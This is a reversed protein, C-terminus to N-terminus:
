ALVVKGGPALIMIDTYPVELGRATLAVFFEAPHGGQWDLPPAYMGYHCPIVVRPQLEHTLQAAFGASLNTDNIPLLLYDVHLSAMSKLYCSDGPHYINGHATKILYGCGAEDQDKVDPYYVLDRSVHLGRIVEIEYGDGEIVDGPKVARVRAEGVGGEVLFKRCYEPACVTSGMEELRGFLGRDMHDTHEHTYLVHDAQQIDAGPLPFEHVREQFHAEETVAPDLFVFSRGLRIVFGANGLWWVADPGGDGYVERKIARVPKM